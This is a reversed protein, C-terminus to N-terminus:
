TPHGHLAPRRIHVPDFRSLRLPPRLNIPAPPPAESDHTRSYLFVGAGIYFMVFSSFAGWIHVTALAFMLAVLSIAHGVRLRALARDPLRAGVVRWLHLLFLGLTLGGGVLGYRMCQMLWFNDVSNTLWPPRPWDNFGIGFLPNDMVAAWGYDFILIRVYSSFANFTFTGILLTVPTRNSSLDIVVYLIAFLLLLLKWRGRTAVNWALLMVQLSMVMMAGSSMSSFSSYVLFPLLLALRWWSKSLMFVNAISLAGFMGWLIPHEFPGYVRELGMRGYASQQRYSTDGLPALLDHIVLQGTRNEIITAPLLCLIAIVLCRWVLRYDGESQVLIRAVFYGGVLEVATIAAFPLRAGGTVVGLSLIMWGALALMTVDLATVRGARRRLVMAICPLVGILLLARSPSLRLGGFERSVPLLMSILMVVLCATRARSGQAARDPAPIDTIDTTAM